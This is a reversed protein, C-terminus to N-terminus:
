RHNDIEFEIKAIAERIGADFAFSYVMQYHMLRKHGVGMNILEQKINNEELNFISSIRSTKKYIAMAKEFAEDLGRKKLLKNIGRFGM